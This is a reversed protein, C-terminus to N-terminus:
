RDHDSERVKRRIVAQAGALDEFAVAMVAAAQDARDHRVLVADHVPLATIGMESLTLLVRVMIDSEIRQVQHGVTSPLFTAIPRHHDRVLRCVRDLAAADAMPELDGNIPPRIDPCLKRALSALEHLRAEGVFTLAALLTKIDDRDAHALGPIAYLDGDPPVAAVKGYLIRLACQGFDLEVVPRGDIRISRLRAEAALGEIWFGGYLRGGSEFSGNSFIRRLRRRGSDIGGDTVVIDAQALHANIAQMEARMQRTQATDVYRVEPAPGGDEPKPGRLIIEDGPRDQRFDDLTLGFTECLQFLAPGPRVVTQIREGGSGVYGIAQTILQLAALADLAQPLLPNLAPSRSRDVKELVGKSRPCRFGGVIESVATVMAECVIARVAAEFKIQASRARRRRKRGDPALMRLREDEFAQVQRMAEALAAGADDSEPQWAGTFPPHGKANATNSLTDM